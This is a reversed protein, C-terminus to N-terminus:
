HFSNRNLEIRLPRLNTTFANKRPYVTVAKSTLRVEGVYEPQRFYPLINRDICLNKESDYVKLRLLFHINDSIGLTVIATTAANEKKRFISLFNEGQNLAERVTNKILSDTSRNPACFLLANQIYGFMTETDAGQEAFLSTYFDQPVGVDCYRLWRENRYLLPLDAFRVEGDHLHPTFNIFLGSFDGFSFKNERLKLAIRTALAHQQKTGCITPWPNGKTTETESHFLRIDSIVSM